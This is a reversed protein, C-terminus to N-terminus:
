KNASAATRLSVGLLQLPYRLGLAYPNLEFEGLSWTAIRNRMLVPASSGRDSQRGTVFRTADQLLKLFPVSM